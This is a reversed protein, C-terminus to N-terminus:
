DFLTSPHFKEIIQHAIKLSQYSQYIDQTTRTKNHISDAFAQMESKIVEEAKARSAAYPVETLEGAETKILKTVQFQELDLRICENKQFIRLYSNQGNEFNGCNINVTCGNEFELRVNVFDVFDNFLQTANATVKRINSGVVYTLLEIDNLLAGFILSDNSISLVKHQFRNLEIYTPRKTLRKIKKVEPHLKDEQMVKLNVQAEIAIENLQRAERIDESILGNLLVHRSHMLAQSAYKYHMGVPTQIDLVDSADILEQYHHFVPVNFQKALAQAEESQHDYIGIISFEPLESLYQLHKRGNENIGVLGIKIPMMIFDFTNM